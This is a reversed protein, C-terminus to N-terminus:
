RTKVTTLTLRSVCILKGFADTIEINWVQITRGVRIPTVKGYVVGNAISNLHNANIEVGVVNEQNPNELMCNGAVSGVTEALVVSAGGHLVGFPQHTTHNVPMRAILFDPGIETFVIKLHDVLTNKGFSNLLELTIPQKWIM